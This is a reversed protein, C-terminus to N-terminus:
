QEYVNGMKAMQEILVEDRKLSAGDVVRIGDPGITGENKRERGEYEAEQGDFDPMNAPLEPILGLLAGGAADAAVAERKERSIRPKSPELTEKVRAEVFHVYCSAIAGPVTDSFGNVVHEYDQIGTNLVLICEAKREAAGTHLVAPVPPDAERKKVIQRLEDLLPWAAAIDTSYPAEQGGKLAAVRADLEAGSPVYNSPLDPVRMIM